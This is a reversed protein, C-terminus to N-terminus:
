GPALGRSHLNYKGMLYQMRERDTKFTYLKQSGSALVAADHATKYEYVANAARQVQPSDFVFVPGSAPSPIQDAPAPYLYYTGDNNLVAGVSTYTNSQYSSGNSNSAFLWYSFGGITQVTYDNSYGIPNTYSLADAENAFYAMASGVPDAVESMPGIVLRSGTGLTSHSLGEDFVFATNEKIPYSNDGLIFEGTSDNLYVLFTTTFPAAGVDTHPAMDGHIWKMPIKSVNSLDMGLSTLASRISDTLDIFFPATQDAALDKLYQIDNASLINEV